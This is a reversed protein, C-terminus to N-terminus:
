KLYGHERILLLWHNAFLCHKQQCLPWFCIIASNEIEISEEYIGYSDSHFMQPCVHLNKYDTPEIRSDIVLFCMEPERMPDGNLKGYHCLSYLTGEGLETVIRYLKEVTLTPCGPSYFKFHTQTGMKELIQSFIETALQNIKKM